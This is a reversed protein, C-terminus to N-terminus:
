PLWSKLWGLLPGSWAYLLELVPGTLLGALYFVALQLGFDKQLHAFAQLPKIHTVDEGHWHSITYNRKVSYPGCTKLYTHWVKPELLRTRRSSPSESNKLYSSPYILLANVSKADLMNLSKREARLEVTERIDNVRLDFLLGRKAFGWGKSELIGRGTTRYRYRLYATEYEANKSVPSTLTLLMSGDQEVCFERIQVVKDLVCNGSSRKFDITDNATKVTTGFILDNTTENLVVASLDDSEMGRYPAPARLRVKQIAETSLRLRLGVDVFVKSLEFSRNVRFDSLFSRPGKALAWVNIHIAELAVDEPLHERYVGFVAMDQRDIELESKYRFNLM